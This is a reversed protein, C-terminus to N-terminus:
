TSFLQPMYTPIIRIITAYLEIKCSQLKLGLKSVAKKTINEKFNFSRLSYVQKLFNRETNEKTGDLM